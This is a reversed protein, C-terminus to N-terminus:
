DIPWSPILMDVETKLRITENIAVVIKQYTQIEDYSLKRGKRDKLWKECVHYGGIRVEWVAASVGSFYQAKNIWVRKDKDAFQVKEVCNDGKISFETIFKNLKPSEMLHLAVLESGKKCLANFLKHNGTLPLRPFDSKLFEAYRLRYTSSHLIAYIYNFIDEPNVGKPFNSTKDQSLLLKESLAKLFSPNFNPRRDTELKLDGKIPPYIYLPFLYNIEKLSVAHHDLIKRTCFVHEFRGIEISRTTSLALNSMRMHSMIEERPRWVVSPHYFIPRIDFPRYLIQDFYNRWDKLAILEKRANAVRWAYNENLNLKSKIDSDSLSSSRFIDLRKRISDTDLAIVLSDRATVIGSSHIPMINTIKWYKEYEKQYKDSRPIFFYYPSHSNIKRWDTISIDSASLESYKDSRGGWLECHHITAPCQKAQQKVFLAISVGQQIDFVNEDKRGNPPIQRKKTSGHLDFIYMDTFTNQLSQRMGRFTPNDLYGHNTILGLIGQGTREIRWQAFRIFKVYDDSLWVKKEGLPQSDAQRYSELLNNIWSGRNASIGSYPPNGLVVMIPLDKKITAAANAEDAVWSAFLKESKKAAEELTNTLYIGLRQDSSFKYGTQELQMGLKLHAIAYPAMLLEFGFIRNLLHNAVYDDWSGKQGAFSRYIHDVIFFLFTGTGTAPDLIFTNEDGLGKQRNFHTKLLHDISRIIYKVVPEPTYYVGRFERMRPDYAALFTEYFHVIPDEKGKGKGFDKLIESINAHKLLEVIDDVAWAISDPMNGAIEQFLKRLFPNTKPLIFAAMERSFQKESPAHIRAAFLGYALTQAFMDAFQTENLDPILVQRFAALWEQLWPGRASPMISFGSTAEKIRHREAEETEEKIAEIILERVIRTMHALSLALDKATAVTLAPEKFFASLLQGVKQEGDQIQKIKGKADFDALRATLRKKGNVYWRFELYDALIWNPLGDRFRIFQYGHTGKGAEIENLNTGIDKTEIYGLPVTKRTIRFDPAGCLIRKPENTAIIGPDFAEILAKLAPRYTSETAIGGALEKKISTLYETFIDM